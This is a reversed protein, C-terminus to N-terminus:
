LSEIKWKKTYPNLILDISMLSDPTDYTFMYYGGETNRSPTNSKELIEIFTMLTGKQQGIKFEEGMEGQKELLFYKAALDTDGAKLAAIFLNLTEEPTDGGYADNKYAEALQKSYREMKEPDGKLELAVEDFDRAVFPEQKTQRYLILARYAVFALYAAAIVIVTWKIIKWVPSMVRGNYEGGKIEGM